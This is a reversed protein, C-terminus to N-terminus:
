CRESGSNFYMCTHTHTYTHTHAGTLTVWDHWIRQSGMFDRSDELGSYQLPYGNGELPSRGLGPIVGLDGANCTSEKGASGGPFGMKHTHTYIYVCVCVCIGIFIETHVYQIKIWGDRSPCKPQKCTKAVAFLAAIFVPSRTDKWIPIKM